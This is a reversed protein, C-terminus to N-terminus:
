RPKVLGKTIKVAGEPADKIRIPLSYHEEIDKPTEVSDSIPKHFDSVFYKEPKIIEYTTSKTNVFDIITKVYKEDLQNDNVADMLYASIIQLTVRERRPDIVQKANDYSSITKSIFLNSELFILVNFLTLSKDSIKDIFNKGEEDDMLHKLVVNNRKEDLSQFGKLKEIKQELREKENIAEDRQEVVADASDIQNQVKLKEAELDIRLKKNKHLLGEIEQKHKQALKEREEKDETTRLKDADLADAIFPSLERKFAEKVTSKITTIFNENDSQQNKSIKKYGDSITELIVPEIGGIFTSILQTENAKSDNKGSSTINKPQSKRKPKSEKKPQEKKKPQSIVGSNLDTTLVKKATKAAEKAKEKFSM